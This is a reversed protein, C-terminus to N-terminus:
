RDQLEINRSKKSRLDEAEMSVFFLGRIYPTAIFDTLRAAPLFLFGHRRLDNSEGFAPSEKPDLFELVCLDCHLVSARVIGIVSVGYGNRFIGVASANELAGGAGCPNCECMKGRKESGYGRGGNVM